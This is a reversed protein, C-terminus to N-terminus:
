RPRGRIVRLVADLVPDRNSFYDDSSLEVPIKPAIWARQDQDETQHYRTSITMQLGSVPLTTPASEGVFNPRSGSPEGAIIASTYRDLENLFVQAASFTQRATIVYLGAREQSMEFAIIARLLPPFLNLNGGSNHRLDVILNRIKSSALARHLPVAFQAITEQAKNLVQNFQFYLTKEDPLVQFWYNDDVHQLYLPVAGARALKSPFLKRRVFASDTPRAVVQRRAGSAELSLAVEDESSTIGAARLYEVFRLYVPAQLRIGMANDVSLFPTIRQLADQIPTQGIGLVRAGICQCDDPADIVFVGDSFDYFAFPIHRPPAGRLATHGDGLRALLRQIEPEMASDSLKSIRVRLQRVADEYGPPLTGNRYSYHMRRVESLLFDLDYNWGAERSMPSKPALGAVKRFADDERWAAFADDLAVRPRNELPVALAKALWEMARNKDGARAYLSAVRYALSGPYKGGRELAQSYAEAAPTFHGAAAHAAGLQNWIETDDPYSKALRDYLPAAGAFDGKKGLEEARAFLEYYEAGHVKGQHKPAQACALLSLVLVASLIRRRGM